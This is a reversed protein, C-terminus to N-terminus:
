AEREKRALSILRAEWLDLASSNLAERERESEDGRRQKRPLVFHKQSDRPGWASRASINLM